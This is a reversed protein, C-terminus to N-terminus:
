PAKETPASPSRPQVRQLLVRQGSRVTIRVSGDSLVAAAMPTGLTGANTINYARLQGDAPGDPTYWHAPLDSYTIEYQRAAPYPDAMLVLTDADQFTISGTFPASSRLVPKGHLWIHSAATTYLNRAGPQVPNTLAVTGNTIIDGMTRLNGDRSRAFMYAESQSYDVIGGDAQQATYAIFDDAKGWAVWGNAPLTLSHGQPEMQDLEWSHDTTDRYTIWASLSTSDGESQNNPHVRLALTEGANMDIALDPMAFTNLDRNTIAQSWLLQNGHWITVTVGDGSSLDIDQLWARLRVTTQLPSKWVLAAECTGDPHFSGRAIRCWTDPGQWTQTEANWAMDHYQGDQWFRYYWQHEGQRHSFDETSEYWGLGHQGNILIHTDDAYTLYLRPHHLDIEAQIAGSLDAWTEGTDYAIRAIRSSLYRSQLARMLYYEAMTDSLSARLWPLGGDLWGTHGYAIQWARYHDQQMMDFAADHLEANNNIIGPFFFRRSYGMGQNAQLPQVARLEFDPILPAGARGEIQAETGDVYGAYYPDYTDPGAGGEGSLPGQYQNRQHLFFAKRLRVAEAHTHPTENDADLDIWRWPAVVTDVDEYAANPAYDTVIRRGQAEALPITKDSTTCFSQVGTDSNYWCAKPTGDAYSAVNDWAFAPADPYHDVYNEHLAIRNGASKASEILDRLVASGGWEPNAPYHNPLKVDYGYRQWTHIIVNFDTMGYRALADLLGHYRLFLDAANGEGPHGGTQWLASHPRTGAWYDGQWTMEQYGEAGRYELYRWNRHGQTDSWDLAAHYIDGPITIIPQWITEDCWNNEGRHNIHFFLVDGAQIDLTLLPARGLTAGNELVASWIELDNHRISIVVGNGCAPNNNAARGMVLVRATVPSTWARVADFPLPLHQNTSTGWLDLTIRHNLDARYPSPPHHPAPLVDAIDPSVALYGTENLPEIQGASDMEPIGLTYASIRNDGPEDIVRTFRYSNSKGPDLTASFFYEAGYAGIPAPLYPLLLVRGAPTAESAGIRFGWFNGNGRVTRSMDRVHWALTGGRLEIDYRLHHNAEDLAITYDLRLVDDILRHSDLRVDAVSALAAPELVTDDARRYRPGAAALPYATANDGNMHVGIRLRGTQLEPDNLNLLYTATYRGTYTFIYTRASAQYSVVTRYPETPYTILPSITDRDFREAALTSQNDQSAARASKRENLFTNGQAGWGIATLWSLSTISAFLILL